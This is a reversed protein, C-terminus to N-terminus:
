FSTSLWARFLADRLTLTLQWHGLPQRCPVVFRAHNRPEQPRSRRSRPTVSRAAAFRRACQPIAQAHISTRSRQQTQPKGVSTAYSLSGATVQSASIDLGVREAAPQSQPQRPPSPLVNASRASLVRPLPWTCCVSRLLQRGSPAVSRIAVSLVRLTASRAIDETRHLWAFCWLDPGRRRNRRLSRTRFPSFLSQRHTSIALYRGIITPAASVWLGQLLPKTHTKKTKKTKDRKDVTGITPLYTPIIRVTRRKPTLHAVFRRAPYRQNWCSLLLALNHSHTPIRRTNRTHHSSLCFPLSVAQGPIFQVAHSLSSPSPVAGCCKPPIDYNNATQFPHPRSAFATSLPLGAIRLDEPGSLLLSSLVQCPM